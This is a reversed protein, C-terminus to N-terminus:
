IIEQIVSLVEDRDLTSHLRYSAVYLNALNANQQEVETYRGSYQRNEGEIQTLKQELHQTEERSRKLENQTLLLQEEIQNKDNKLTDLLARLEENDNLLGQVYNTTDDLVRYVYSKQGEREDSMSEEKKGIQGDASEQESPGQRFSSVAFASARTIDK